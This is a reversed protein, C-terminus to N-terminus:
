LSAHRVKKIRRSTRGPTARRAGRDALGLRACGHAVVNEERAVEITKRTACSVVVMCAVRPSAGSSAGRRSRAGSASGPRPLVGLPPLRRRTASTEAAPRHPTSPTAAAVRAPTTVFARRPREEPSAAARLAASPRGLLRTRREGSWLRAYQLMGFAAEEVRVVYMVPRSAPMSVKESTSLYMWSLPPSECKARVCYEVKSSASCLPRFGSSSGIRYKVTTRCGPVLSYLVHNSLIWACRPLSWGSRSHYPQSLSSLQEKSVNTSPMVAWTEVSVERSYTLSCTSSCRRSQSGSVCRNSPTNLISSPNSAMSDSSSDQVPWRNSKLDSSPSSPYECWLRMDFFTYASNGTDSTSPYSASM